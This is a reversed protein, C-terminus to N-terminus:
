EIVEMLSRFSIFNEGWNDKVDNRMAPAYQEVYVNYREMSEAYFQAAYTPGDNEDTDLLRVFQVRIFCGSCMVDPLHKERMWKVWAEHISWTVQTTVNYILM